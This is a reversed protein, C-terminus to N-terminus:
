HYYDDIDDDENDKNIDLEFWTQTLFITHVADTLVQPGASPHIIVKVYILQSMSEAQSFLLSGVPLLGWHIIM